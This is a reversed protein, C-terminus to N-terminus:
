ETVAPSMMENHHAAQVPILVGAKQVPAVGFGTWLNLRGNKIRANINDAPSASTDFTLGIASPRDSV